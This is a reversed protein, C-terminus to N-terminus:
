KKEKRMDAGCNPCFKSGSWRLPIIRESHPINDNRAHCNSCVWAGLNWDVANNDWIWEGHPRDAQITPADNIMRQFVEGDKIFITTECLKKSLADADILRGHSGCHSHVGTDDETEYYHPCKVCNIEGHPYYKVEGFADWLVVKDKNRDTVALMVETDSEYNPKSLAEIAVRLAQVKSTDIPVGHEVMSKQWEYLVAKAEERKM